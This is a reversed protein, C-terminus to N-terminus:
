SLVLDPQWPLRLWRLGLLSQSRRPRSKSHPDWLQQAGLLVAGACGAASRAQILTVGVLEPDVNTSYKATIQDGGVSYEINVKGGTNLTKSTLPAEEGSNPSEVFVTDVEKRDISNVVEASYGSKDTENILFVEKQIGM